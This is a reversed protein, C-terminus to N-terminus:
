YFILYTNYTLKHNLLSINIVYYLGKQKKSSCLVSIPTHTDKLQYTFTYIYHWSRSLSAIHREFEHTAQEVHAVFIIYRREKMNAAVRFRWSTCVFYELKSLVSPQFFSYYYYYKRTPSVFFRIWNHTLRQSSVIDRKTNKQSYHFKWTDLTIM